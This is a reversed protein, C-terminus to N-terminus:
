VPGCPCATSQGDVGSWYGLDLGTPHAFRLAGMLNGHGMPVRQKAWGVFGVSDAPYAFRLAGM